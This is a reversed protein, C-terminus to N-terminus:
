HRLAYLLKRRFTGAMVAFGSGIMVLTGPEPTSLGADSIKQTAACLNTEWIAAARYMEKWKRSGLRQFSSHEM